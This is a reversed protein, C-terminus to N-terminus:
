PASETSTRPSPTSVLGLYLIGSNYANVLRIGEDQTVALTVVYRLLNEGTSVTSGASPSPSAGPSPSPSPSVSVGPADKPREGVALVKVRSLLVVTEQPNQLSDQKPYTRYVAVTAGPDVNGAVQQTIGLVVSVAIKGAPLTFSQSPSPKPPGPAEFQRRMLLQDPYLPANLQQKDLSTDLKPVAGSPVTRAPVLVQRALKRNRIDAGSTGAPITDTALLVWTGQAGELARQDAGHGYAVIAIASFGALVAAAILILIRRRM